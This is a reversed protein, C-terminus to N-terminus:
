IHCDVITIIHEEKLRIFPDIFKDYWSKVWEESEKPTESSYGWWGMKGKEHWVGDPTIVAYTIFEGTL